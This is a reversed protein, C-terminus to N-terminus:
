PLGGFLRLDAGTRGRDAAMPSLACDACALRWAKVFVGSAPRRLSNTTRTDDSFDERGELSSWAIGSRGGSRRARRSSGTKERARTRHAEATRISVAMRATIEKNRPSTSDGRQFPALWRSGSAGLRPNSGLGAFEPTSVIRFRWADPQHAQIMIKAAPWSQMMRKACDLGDLEPMSMGAISVDPLLSLTQKVAQPGDVAESEVKWGPQDEIIARFRRTVIEHNDARGM